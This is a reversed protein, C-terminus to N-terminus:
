IKYKLKKNVDITKTNKDNQQKHTNSIINKNNHRDESYKKYRNVKESAVKQKVLKDLGGYLFFYANLNEADAGYQM